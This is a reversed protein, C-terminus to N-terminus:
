NNVLIQDVLAILDFDINGNREDINDNELNVNKINNFPQILDIISKLVLNTYSQMETKGREELSLNNIIDNLDDENDLNIIESVTSINTIERLEVNTLKKRYYLLRNKISTNVACIPQPSSTM